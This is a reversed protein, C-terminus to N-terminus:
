LVPITQRYLGNERGTGRGPAKAAFKGDSVRSAKLFRQLCRPQKNDAPILLRTKRSRTVANTCCNDKPTIHDAPSQILPVSVLPLFM